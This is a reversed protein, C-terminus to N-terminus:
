GHGSPRGSIRRRSRDVAQRYAEVHRRGADGWGRADLNPHAPLGRAGADLAGILEADDLEGAYLHVWEEGVERALSRNVENDPVLVPRDLSLAALVTGSNHMHRYPLVVLSSATVQAVLTADDVYEFLLQVRADSGALEEIESVLEESSPLGAVSLSLDGADLRRFVGILHEVGKYRRIRGVFALRGPVARARPYAEFWDRYHGHPITVFPADDPMETCDNLRIRLTTLRDLARLVVYDLRWLGAPPELNHWTRVVPTRQLRWRLCLVGTLVLRAIRRPVTRGVLWSEPWHTHVVDYSGTLATRWSFYCLEVDPETELAHALQVIYPNTTPRPRGFSTLVRLPAGGRADPM